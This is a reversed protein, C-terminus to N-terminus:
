RQKEPIGARLIADMAAAQREWSFSAAVHARAAAGLTSARAPDRLLAVAAGALAAAGDRVLSEHGPPLTLGNAAVRSMVVPRTSAWAELVKNKIGSGARMPALGVRTRALVDDMATVDALVEVGQLAVLARVAQVPRRGAILLRAEPMAARVLPFVAHAAFVAADVNPHFNLSGTFSLVPDAAPAPAGDPLTVGNPVVHVRRGGMRRLWAADTDGVCVVDRFARFCRRAHRVSIAAQRLWYLRRRLGRTTRAARWFELANCDILDAVAPPARHLGPWVGEAGAFVLGRDFRRGALLAQLAARLPTADYHWPVTAAGPLAVALAEVGDPVPGEPALLTLSWDRALHEM